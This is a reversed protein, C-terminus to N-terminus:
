ENWIGKAKKNLIKNVQIFGFWSNFLVFVFINGLILGPLGWQKCLFIAIPINIIGCILSFFLQLKIKGLGALLQTHLGGWTNAIHYFCMLLTVIFPIYVADGIWVKYIIPSLLTILIGGASILVFILRLKKTVNKMWTYDGLTHAEVFASWFPTLIINFLMTIVLLYKYAINYVSVDNPGLLQTIIINNTEYIVIAIIQLFFFKIGLSLLGRAMRFRIFKLSPRYLRLEHTYLWISALFLVLIQAIGLAIALYILSGETYKTLYLIFLAVMIQSATDFISSLVPKQIATVLTSILRLIFQFCFNTLVIFVVCTLEEAMEPSTNLVVTWNVHYVIISFICWILLVIISLIAYTTSVYIRALRIKGRSIAEIFKNKLGNGLGVDFFSLWAILSSITLWIGYQYSSIYNITLPVVLLSILISLGKLFFMGLINRKAKLSREQGQTFFLKIREKM